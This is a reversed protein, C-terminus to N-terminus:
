AGGSVETWGLREWMALEARRSINDTVWRYFKEMTSKVQLNGM